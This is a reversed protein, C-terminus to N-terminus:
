CSHPKNFTDHICTVISGSVDVLQQTMRVLMMTLVPGVSDDWLRAM